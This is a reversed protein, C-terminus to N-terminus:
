FSGVVVVVIISLVCSYPYHLSVSAVNWHQVYNFGNSPTKYTAIDGLAFVRGKNKGKLQEIEQVEDVKVTSNKELELGADKLVVAGVKSSDSSSPSFHSLEVPLLFKIGKSEHFQFNFTTLLPRYLASWSATTTQRRRQPMIDHSSRFSLFFLRVKRIGNGVEKGLIKEFPVEDMGVVTVKAKDALALAVEM